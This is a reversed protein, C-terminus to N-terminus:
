FRKPTDGEVAKFCYEQRIHKSQSLPRIVLTLIHNVLGQTKTKFLDQKPGVLEAVTM